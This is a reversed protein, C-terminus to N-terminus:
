LRLVFTACRAQEYAFRDYAKVDSPIGPFLSSHLLQLIINADTLDTLRSPKSILTMCYVEGWCSRAHPSFIDKNLVSSM